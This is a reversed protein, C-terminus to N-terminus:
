RALTTTTQPRRKEINFINTSDPADIVHRSKEGVLLFRAKAELPNSL